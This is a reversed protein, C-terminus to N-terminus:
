LWFPLGVELGLKESAYPLYDSNHIFISLHGFNQRLNSKQNEYSIVEQVLPTDDKWEKTYFYM